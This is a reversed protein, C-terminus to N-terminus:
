VMDAEYHISEDSEYGSDAYKGYRHIKDSIDKINEASFLM